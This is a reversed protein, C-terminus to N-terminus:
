ISLIANVGEPISKNPSYEKLNKDILLKFCIIIETITAITTTKTKLFSPSLYFAVALPM